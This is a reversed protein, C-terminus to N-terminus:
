PPIIGLKREMELAADEADQKKQAAVAGLETRGAPQSPGTM